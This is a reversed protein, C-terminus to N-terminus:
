TQSQVVKINGMGYSKCNINGNCNFYYRAGLKELEYLISTSVDEEAECTIIAYEPNVEDIFQINNLGLRGHHPLKLLDCDLMPNGLLEEIRAEEADGAFLFTDQRYEIRTVLSYDNEEEYSKENPPYIVMQMDGVSIDTKETIRVFKDNMGWKDIKKIFKAYKNGEGEYDPGYIKEVDFREIIQTAGGVHDKDYHTIIMINIKEINKEVLFDIVEPATEEYGTDIMYVKDSFTILICDGKGVNIFNIDLEANEETHVTDADIGANKKGNKGCASLMTAAGIILIATFMLYKINRIAKKACKSNNENNYNIRNCSYKTYNNQRCNDKRYNDRKDFVFIQSNKQM